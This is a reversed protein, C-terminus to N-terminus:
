EPLSVFPICASLVICASLWISVQFVSIQRQANKSLNQKYEAQIMISGLEVLIQVASASTYQKYVRPSGLAESCLAFAAAVGRNVTSQHPAVASSGQIGQTHSMARFQSPTFEREWTKSIWPTEQWCAFDSLTRLVLRPRTSVRQAAEQGKWPFKM